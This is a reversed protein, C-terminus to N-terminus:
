GNGRVGYKSKQLQELLTRLQRVKDPHSAAVNNQEGVDSKLDFLLEQGKKGRPKVFKWQGVRVALRRAEEIMYPLGLEDQGLLARLSDRSDIAQEKTLDLKLLSAFSAIFDIQNVLANSVGPKIHGPWRVLLPVRTGGEFIQY